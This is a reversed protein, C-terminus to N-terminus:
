QRLARGVAYFDEVWLYGNFDRPVDDLQEPTEIGAIEGKEYPGMMLVKTNAKAMRDLFRNPWGWIAWQYNLPIAVTTNRCSEPVHSTWGFKMYDILCGKGDEKWFTWAGPVLEKMRRTVRPHGYFAYKDDIPKGARAFAAVLLDADRPDKSKFNVFLRTAPAQTLVEELTPMAGVGRGRLPYTKGGDATYGYGVDLTKLEALTKSRVPGKGNTRCELTWDHFVVMQNDSTPHVDIEVADAGMRDATDISRVTNEIYNHEVPKIRTATCTENDVGERSFQQALGRHAVLKLKGQPKPAIWSANVLSLTVATGAIAFGAITRKRWRM